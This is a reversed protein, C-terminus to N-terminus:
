DTVGGIVIMVNCGRLASGTTGDIMVAVFSEQVCSKWYYATLVIITPVVRGVIITPVVTEAIITPIFM